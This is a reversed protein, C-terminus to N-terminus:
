HLRHSHGVAANAALGAMRVSDRITKVAIGIQHATLDLGLDSAQQKMYRLCHEIAEAEKVLDFSLRPYQM